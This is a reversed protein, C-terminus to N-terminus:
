EIIRGVHILDDELLELDANRFLFDVCADFQKSMSCFNNPLDCDLYSNIYDELTDSDMQQLADWVPYKIESKKIPKFKMRNIRREFIQLTSYTIKLRPFVDWVNCIWLSGHPYNRKYFIRENKTREILTKTQIM